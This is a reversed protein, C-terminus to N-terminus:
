GAGVVFRDPVAKCREAYGGDDGTKESVRASGMEWDRRVYWIGEIDKGTLARGFSKAMGNSLDYVYLEIHTQTM